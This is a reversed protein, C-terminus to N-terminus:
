PTEKRAAQVADPALLVPPGVSAAPGPPGVPPALDRLLLVNSSYELRAAPRAEATLFMGSPGPKVSEIRGVPFGSPFRGGLGSTLLEDGARVDASVPINPLQLLSGARSGYAVTRQGTREIVVPVAADPDTVLMVVCTDPLVEVVQGMIGDADIVVQGTAVGQNAGVNLMIRHRYAGLDVDILQALQVNLKLSRRTDLLQKLKDNQKAVAAMRNLRANALLLDQRLRRNESTLQKRSAFAVRATEVAQSPLAALKYLPEIVVATGYRAQALWHGRYDLVMLVCALALYVILRLTGAMSASFLTSNGDRTLAM